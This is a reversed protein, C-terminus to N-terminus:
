IIDHPKPVIPILLNESLEMAGIVIVRIVVGDSPCSLSVLAGYIVHGKRPDQSKSGLIFIASGNSFLYLGLSSVKM